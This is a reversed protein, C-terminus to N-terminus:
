LRGSRWLDSLDADSRFRLVETGRDRFDKALRAAALDGAEDPDTAIVVRRPRLWNLEAPRHGAGVLGIAAAGPGALDALPGNAARLAHRAALWDTPGETVVVTAARRAGDLGFPAFAGVSVYKPRHPRPEAVAVQGGVIRGTPDKALVVAAARRLLSPWLGGATLTEQGFIAELWEVAVDDLALAAGRVGAPSYARRALWQQARGTWAAEPPFVAETAAWHRLVEVAGQHRRRHAATSTATPLDVTRGLRRELDELPSPEPACAYCRWRGTAVVVEFSPRHDDHLPCRGM